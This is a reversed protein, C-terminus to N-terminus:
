DAALQRLIEARALADEGWVGTVQTTVTTAGRQMVGRSTMCEHKAAIVVAVGRADLETQLTHAIQATLREQIQLRSAFVGVLRAIKSLGVVRGRPLYAVHAFGRFPVMHHECHSEIAIDRVVVPGDYGELDDFGKALISAPDQGYGAFFEGYARLVRDPTDRLGDRTPDEGIWALLTSLAALADQRAPRVMAPLCDSDKRPSPPSRRLPWADAALYVGDNTCIMPLGEDGDPAFICLEPRVM